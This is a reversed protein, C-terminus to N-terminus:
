NKQEIAHDIIRSWLEKDNHVRNYLFNIIEQKTLGWNLLENVQELRSQKEGPDNWYKDYDIEVQGKDNKKLYQIHPFADFVNQFIHMTEHTIVCKPNELYNIVDERSNLNKNKAEYLPIFITRQKHNSAGREEQERFRIKITNLIKTLNKEPTDPYIKKLRDLIYKKKKPLDSFKYIDEIFSM